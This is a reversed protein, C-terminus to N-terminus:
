WPANRPALLLNRPGEPDVEDPAIRPMLNNSNENVYSGGSLKAFVAPNPLLAAKTALRCSPPDLKASDPEKPNLASEYFLSLNFFRAQSGNLFTM